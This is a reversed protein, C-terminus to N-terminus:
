YVFASQSHKKITISELNNLQWFINQNDAFVLAPGRLIKITINTNETVIKTTEPTVANNLAIGIGQTFTTNSISKFYATSGFPTAVVLGDAMLEKKASSTSVQFRLASRPDKTKINIENLAILTKNKYKAKLKTYQKPKIKEKIINQMVSELNSICYCHNCIKSFRLPLKPISPYKKEAGLISGDGGVTIVLDTKNKYKNIIKKVNPDIQHKTPNFIKIPM